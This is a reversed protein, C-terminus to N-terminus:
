AEGRFWHPSSESESAAISIFTSAQLTLTAHLDSSYTSLMGQSEAESQPGVGYFPEQWNWPATALTSLRVQPPHVWTCWRM